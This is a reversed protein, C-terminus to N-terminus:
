NKIVSVLSLKESIRPSYLDKYSLQKNYKSINFSRTNLRQKNRSYTPLKLLISSKKLYEAVVEFYLCDNKFELAKALNSYKDQIKGIFEKLRTNLDATINLTKDPFNLLIKAKRGSVYFEEKSNSFSEFNTTKNFMKSTKIFKRDDTIHDFMKARQILTMVRPNYTIYSVDLSSSKLHVPQKSPLEKYSSVDEPLNELLDENNHKIPNSLFLDVLQSAKKWFNSDDDLSHM